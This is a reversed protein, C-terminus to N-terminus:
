AASLPLVRIYADSLIPLTGAAPNTNAWFAGITFTHTGAVLPVPVSEVHVPVFMRDVNAQYSYRNLFGTAADIKVFVFVANSRFGVANGVDVLRYGISLLV